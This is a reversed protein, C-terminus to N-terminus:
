QDKHLTNGLSCFLHRELGSNVTNQQRHDGCRYGFIKGYCETNM